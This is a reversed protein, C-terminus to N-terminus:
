AKDLCYEFKAKVPDLFYYHLMGKGIPIYVYLHSFPVDKISLKSLSVSWQTFGGWGTLQVPPRHRVQHYALIHSLSVLIIYPGSPSVPWRLMQWEGFTGGSWLFILLMQILMPDNGGKRNGDIYKFRKYLDRNSMAFHMQVPQTFTNSFSRTTGNYRSSKKWVSKTAKIKSTFGVKDWRCAWCLEWPWLSSPRTYNHNSTEMLHVDRLGPILMQSQDSRIQDSTSLRSPDGSEWSWKHISKVVVHFINTNEFFFIFVRTKSYYYYYSQVGKNLGYVNLFKNKYFIYKGFANLANGPFWVWSRPM